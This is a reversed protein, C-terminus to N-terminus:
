LKFLEEDVKAKPHINLAFAITVITVVIGFSMVSWTVLSSSTFKGLVAAIFIAKALDVLLASFVERRSKM